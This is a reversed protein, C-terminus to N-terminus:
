PEFRGEEAKNRYQLAILMAKLFRLIVLALIPRGERSRGIEEVRSLQPYREAFARVIAEVMAADKYSEDLRPGTPTM